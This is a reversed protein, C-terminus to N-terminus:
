FTTLKSYGTPLEEVEPKETDYWNKWDKGNNELDYIINKFVESISVLKQLDKWGGDPVWKYPKQGGTNELATNGKLFFDLESHNILQDGDLIMMTM